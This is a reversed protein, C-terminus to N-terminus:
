CRLNSRGRSSPQAITRPRRFQGNGKPTEAHSFDSIVRYIEPRLVRRRM